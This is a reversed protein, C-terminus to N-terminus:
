ELMIVKETLQTDQSDIAYSLSSRWKEVEVKLVEPSAEYKVMEEEEEKGERGDASEDEKLDGETGEGERRKEDEREKDKDQSVSEQDLKNDSTSAPETDPSHLATTSRQHEDM